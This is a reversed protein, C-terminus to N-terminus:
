EFSKYRTALLIEGYSGLMLTFRVAQSYKDSKVQLIKIHFKKKYKNFKNFGYRCNKSVKDRNLRIVFSYFTKTCGSTWLTHM